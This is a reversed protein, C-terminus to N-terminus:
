KKFIVLSPICIYYGVTVNHEVLFPFYTLLTEGEEIFIAAYGDYSFIFSFYNESVDTFMRFHTAAQIVEM